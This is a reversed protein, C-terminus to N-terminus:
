DLRELSGFDLLRNTHIAYQLLSLAGRGTQNKHLLQKAQVLDQPDKGLRLPQNTSPRPLRAVRECLSGAIDGSRGLGLLVLWM